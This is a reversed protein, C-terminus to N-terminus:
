RATGHLIVENEAVLRRLNALLQAEVEGQSERWIEALKPAITWAEWAIRCPWPGSWFPGDSEPLIYDRPMAEIATLGRKSNLVFVTKTVTKYSHQM